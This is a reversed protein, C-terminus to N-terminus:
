TALLRADHTNVVTVGPLGALRALERHNEPLREPLLSTGRELERLFEIEAFSGHVSADFSADGAHVIVEDGNEVVVIAHGRTHGPMPVLTIGPAVVHGTLGLVEAEGPGSYLEFLPGHAWDRPRYRSEAPDYDGHVAAAHEVATVHVRARPFDVLGGIHDGDMHTVVIDTVDAAAFGRGEVQRRTSFEIPGPFDSDLHDAVAFGADVLVLGAETQLLLVHCPIPPLEPPMGPFPIAACGLHHVIM